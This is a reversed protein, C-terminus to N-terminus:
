KNKPYGINAAMDQATVTFQVGGELGKIGTLCKQFLLCGANFEHLGPGHSARGAILILKKQKDPKPKAEEGMAAMPLAAVLGLIGALWRKLGTNRMNIFGGGVVGGPLGKGWLLSSSFDFKENM